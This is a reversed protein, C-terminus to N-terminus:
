ERLYDCPNERFNRSRSEHSRPISGLLQGTSIAVYLGGSSSYCPEPSYAETLEGCDEIAIPYNPGELLKRALTHADM